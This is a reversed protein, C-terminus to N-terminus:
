KADGKRVFWSKIWLSLKKGIWVSGKAALNCVPLFLLALGACVLGAGMLFLGQPIGSFICLVVSGVLIGVASGALAVFIAYLSIIVSWLSVYVSFIVALVSILIPLWLPFGLILLLIEWTQLKRRNKVKGKVLKSLPMDMLIQEAIKEATGLSAVADAESMGEEMRDDILEAYYEISARRDEEPLQSLAEELAMLFDLKDM